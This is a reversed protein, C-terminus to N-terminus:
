NLDNITKRHPYPRGKRLAVFVFSATCIEATNGYRDEKTVIVNVRISTNGLDTISCRIDLIDGLEGPAKFNVESVYVTVLGDCRSNYLIRRASNSAAIDMESLLRGGFLKGAYNLADPFVTFTYRYNLDSPVLINANKARMDISM